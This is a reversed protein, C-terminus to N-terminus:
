GQKEGAIALHLKLAGGWFAEDGFTDYRFINRGEDLQQLTHKFISVDNAPAIQAQFFGSAGKKQTAINTKTTLSIEAARDQGAVGDKKKFSHLGPGGTVTVSVSDAGVNQIGVMLPEEGHTLLCIAAAGIWITKM